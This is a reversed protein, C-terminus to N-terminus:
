EVKDFVVLDNYVQRVVTDGDDRVTFVIVMGSETVTGVVEDAYADQIRDALLREYGPDRKVCFFSM